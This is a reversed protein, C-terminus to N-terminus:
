IGARNKVGSGLSQTRLGGIARGEHRNYLAHSLACKLSMSDFEVSRGFWEDENYVQVKRQDWNSM